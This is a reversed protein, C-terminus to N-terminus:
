PWLRLVTSPIFFTVSVLTPGDDFSIGIDGDPADWIDDEIRCQSDGSCVEPSTPDTGDPYTPAGNVLATQPINPIKGDKIANEIFDKWFQPM